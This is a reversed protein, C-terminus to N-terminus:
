RYLDPLYSMIGIFRQVFIRARVAASMPNTPTDTRTAAQPLAALLPPVAVLAGAGAAAAGDADVDPDAFDTDTAVAFPM